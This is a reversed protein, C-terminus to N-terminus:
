RVLCTLGRLRALMGDLELVPEAAWPVGAISLEMQPLQTLAHLGAPAGHSTWLSLESLRTLSALPWMSDPQYAAAYVGLQLLGQLQSLQLAFFTLSTAVLLERTLTAISTNKLFWRAGGCVVGWLVWYLLRNQLWKIPM